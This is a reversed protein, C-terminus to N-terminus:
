LLLDLILSSIAKFRQKDGEPLLPLLAIVRSRLIILYHKVVKSSSIAMNLFKIWGTKDGLLLPPLLNLVKSRPIMHSPDEVTSGSTAFGSGKVNPPHPSSGVVTSSGNAVNLFINQCICLPLLPTLVRSRKIIIYHKVVKSSSIAMNLFKIWGTKDGLLMPPLLAQVWSRPIVFHHTKRQAVMAPQMPVKAMKEGQALAPLLAQIRSRPITLHDNWWQAVTM